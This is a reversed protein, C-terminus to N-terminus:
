FWSDHQEPSVPLSGLDSWTVAAILLTFKIRSELSLFIFLMHSLEGRRHILLYNWICLFAQRTGSVWLLQPGDRLGDPQGLSFPFQSGGGRERIVGGWGPTLSPVLHAPREVHEFLYQAGVPLVHAGLLSVAHPEKCSVGGIPPLSVCKFLQWESHYSWSLRLCLICCPREFSPIILVIFYM